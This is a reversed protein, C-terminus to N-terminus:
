WAAARRAPASSQWIHFAHACIYAVVAFAGFPPNWLAVLGFLFGALVGRWGGSLSSYLLLAGLTIQVPARFTSIVATPGTAELLLYSTGLFAVARSGTLMRM